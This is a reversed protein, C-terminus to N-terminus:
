TRFGYHIRRTIRLLLVCQNELAVKTLNTDCLSLIRQLVQKGVLVEQFVWAKQTQCRFDLGLHTLEYRRM